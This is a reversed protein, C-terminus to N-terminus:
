RDRICLAVILLAAVVAGSIWCGIVFGPAVYTWVVVTASPPVVVARFLYDATLAVAPKGDITATWGPSMRDALVLVGGSASEVSIEIREPEDRVLKATGKASKPLSSAEVVGELVVTSDKLPKFLTEFAEETNGAKAFEAVRVRLAPNPSLFVADASPTDAVQRWREGAMSLEALRLNSYVAQVACRELLAATESSAVPLLNKRPV